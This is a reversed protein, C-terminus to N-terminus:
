AVARLSVTLVGGWTEANPAPSTMQRFEMQDIVVSVSTGRKLDQFLVVDGASDLAEMAELRDLCFGDYGVKMGDQTLESDYCRLPIVYQRPRPGGPLAKVQYGRFTPGSTADGSDRNLTFRLSIFEQPGSPYDIALDGEAQNAADVSALSVENGTSDISAIAVSGNLTAKINYQKFLKPWLTNYRIRGTVFNGSSELDTAHEYYLGSGTVVFALRTLSGVTTVGTVTGTVHAQLDTSYPLRGNNLVDKLSIRILGSESDTFGASYGAWLFDGVGVWDQVASPTEILPGYQIEGQSGIAAVRAGKSTGIALFNGLYGYLSYGLEGRPLPSAVTASTLTPIAGNTDLALKLIFSDAGFYGTAYIAEPGESIDSWVWSSAPHTYTATPLAYPAGGGPPVLEYIANDIGGILRGKVWRIVARTKSYTWLKTGSTGSLAGSYIGDTSAAYWTQGDVAISLITGAGGWTISTATGSADVKKLTTDSSFLVYDTGGSQFGVCHLVSGGAEALETTKLLTLQGSTWPNIGTSDAFRFQASEDLRVDSNAIGTGLHWSSQSRLWWGILSQEGPEDGNDFQEKRYQATGRVLPSDPDVSALFPVGGIAYDYVNYFDDYPNSSSALRYLPHPLTLTVYSKPAVM